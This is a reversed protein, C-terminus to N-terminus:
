EIIERVATVLHERTYLYLKRLWPSTKVVESVWWVASVSLNLITVRYNVLIHECVAKWFRLNICIQKGLVYEYNTKALLM